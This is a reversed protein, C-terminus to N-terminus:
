SSVNKTPLALCQVFPSRQSLLWKSGNWETQYEIDNFDTLKKPIYSQKIIM